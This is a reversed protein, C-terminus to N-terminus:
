PTVSNSDGRVHKFDGGLPRRQSSSLIPPCKEWLTLFLWQLWTSSTPPNDPIQCVIEAATFRSQVQFVTCHMRYLHLRTGSKMESFWFWNLNKSISLFSLSCMRRRGEKNRRELFGNQKMKACAAVRFLKGCTKTKVTIRLHQHPLVSQSGKTPRCTAELVTDTTVSFSAKQKTSDWREKNLKHENWSSFLQSQVYFILHDGLSVADSVRNWSWLVKFNPCM